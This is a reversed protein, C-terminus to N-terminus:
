QSQRAKLLNKTRRLRAGIFAKESHNQCRRYEAELQTVRLQLIDLPTKIVKM